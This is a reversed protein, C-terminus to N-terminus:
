ERRELSLNLDDYRNQLYAIENNAEELKESLKVRLKSDENSAESLNKIKDKLSNVEFIQQDGQQNLQMIREKQSEERRKMLDVDRYLTSTNFLDSELDLLSRRRLNKEKEQFLVSLNLNKVSLSMGGFDNILSIMSSKEDMLCDELEYSLKLLLKKNYFLHEITSIDIVTNILSSIIKSKKDILNILSKVEEM